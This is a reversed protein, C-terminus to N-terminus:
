SNGLNHQPCTECVVEFRSTQAWHWGCLLMDFQHFACYHQPGFREPGSRRDRLAAEMLARITRIESM